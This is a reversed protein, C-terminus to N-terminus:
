GVRASSRAAGRYPVARDAHPDHPVGPAPGERHGPPRAARPGQLPGVGVSQDLERGLRSVRRHACCEGIGRRAQRDTHARRRSPPGDVSARHIQRAEQRSLGLPLASAAADMENASVHYKATLAFVRMIDVFSADRSRLRHHLRAMPAKSPGFVGDRGGLPLPPAMPATFQKTPTDPSPSHPLPPLGGVVGKFSPGAPGVQMGFDPMGTKDAAKTVLYRSVTTQIDVEGLLNKPCLLAMRVQDDAALQLYSGVIKLFIDERLSGRGKETSLVKVILQSDTGSSSLETERITSALKRLQSTMWEEQMAQDQTPSRSLAAHFAAVQLGGGASVDQYVEDVESQSLGVNLSAIAAGFDDQTLVGDGRRDFIAFAQLWNLRRSTLQERIRSL